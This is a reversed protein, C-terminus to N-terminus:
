AAREQRTGAGAKPLPCGIIGEFLIEGSNLTSMEPRRSQIFGNLNQMQAESSDNM